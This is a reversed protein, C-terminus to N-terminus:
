NMGLNLFMYRTSEASMSAIEPPAPVPVVWGIPAKAGAKPVEYRSQLVLTQIGERYLILARQYPITPPVEERWFMKGDALATVTTCVVMLATAIRKM